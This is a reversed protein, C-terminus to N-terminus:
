SDAKKNYFSVINGDYENFMGIMDDEEKLEYASMESESSEWGWFAVSNGVLLSLMAALGCAEFGSSVRM